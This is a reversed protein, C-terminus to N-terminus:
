QDRASVIQGGGGASWVLRQNRAWAWCKVSKDGRAEVGGKSGSETKKKSAVSMAAACQMLLLLRV